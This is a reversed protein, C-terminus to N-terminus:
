WGQEIKLRMTVECRHSWRMNGREPAQAAYAGLLPRGIDGPM